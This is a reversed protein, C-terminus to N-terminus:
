GRGSTEVTWSMYPKLFVAAEHPSSDADVIVVREVITRKKVSNLEQQGASSAEGRHKYEIRTRRTESGRDDQVLADGDSQGSNGGIGALIPDDAWQGQATPTRDDNKRLPTYKM